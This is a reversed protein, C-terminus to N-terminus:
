SSFYLQWIQWLWSYLCFSLLVWSHPSVYFFFLFFPLSSPLNWMLFLLHLFVIFLKKIVSLFLIQWEIIRYAAFTHELCSLLVFIKKMHLFLRFHKDCVQVALFTLLFGEPLISFVEHLFISRSLSISPVLFPLEMSFVYSEIRM